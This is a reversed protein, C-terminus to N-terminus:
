LFMEARAAKGPNLKKIDNLVEDVSVFSFEFRSMINIKRIATASPHKDHKLVSKLIPNKTEEALPNTNSYEPIKM